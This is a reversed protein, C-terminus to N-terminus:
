WIFNPIIKMVTWSKNEHFIGKGVEARSITLDSTEFWDKKGKDNELLVIWKKM